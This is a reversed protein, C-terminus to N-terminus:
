RGSRSAALPLSNKRNVQHVQSAEEVGSVPLPDCHLQCVEAARDFSPLQKGMEAWGRGVGRKLFEDVAPVVDVVKTGVAVDKLLDAV